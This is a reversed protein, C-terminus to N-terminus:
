DKFSFFIEKVVTWFENVVPLVIIVAVIWGGVIISRFQRRFKKTAGVLDNIIMRSPPNNRKKSSQQIVPTLYSLLERPNKARSMRSAFSALEVVHPFIEWKETIDIHKIGKSSIEGLHSATIAVCLLRWIIRAEWNTELSDDRASNGIRRVQEETAYPSHKAYFFEVYKKKDESKNFVNVITRCAKDFTRVTEPRPDLIISSIWIFTRKVHKRM